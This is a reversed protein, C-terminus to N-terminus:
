LPKTTLARRIEEALQAPAELEVFHGVGQLLRFDVPCGADHGSRRAVPQSLVFDKEGWILTTPVTIPTRYVEDLVARRSPLLLSLFLQRYYDVPGRMDDAVQFRDLMERIREKNLKGGRGELLLCASGLLRRGISSTFLHEPLWPIQLFLVYASRITQFDQFEFVARALTRPHTCNVVVLSNILSSYRHAFIWGLAGGWDHSVLAPKVLGLAEIMAGIDDTLTLVDYGDRPKDSGPYGRLDPAYVRYERLDEMVERWSLWGEPFGHLFLIPPADSPGAAAVHFRIGNATIHFHEIADTM